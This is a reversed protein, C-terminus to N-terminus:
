HKCTNTCTPLDDFARKCRESRTYTLHFAMYRRFCRHTGPDPGNVSPGANVSPGTGALAGAAERSKTNGTAVRRHTKVSLLWGRVGAPLAAAAQLASPSPTAAHPVSPSPAAATAATWTPSQQTLNRLSWVTSGKSSNFWSFFRNQTPTPLYQSANSLTELCQLLDRVIKVVERFYSRMKNSTTCINSSFLTPPAGLPWWNVGRVVGRSICIAM